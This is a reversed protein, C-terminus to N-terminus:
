LTVTTFIRSVFDQSLQITLCLTVTFWLSNETNELIRHSVCWCYRNVSSSGCLFWIFVEHECLKREHVRGEGWIFTIPSDTSWRRRRHGNPSDEASWWRKAMHQQQQQQYYFVWVSWSHILWLPWDSQEAGGDAGGLKRDQREVKGRRGSRRRKRERRMENCETEM